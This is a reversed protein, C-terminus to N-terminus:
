PREEGADVPRGALVGAAVHGCRTGPHVESVRWLEASAAAPSGNATLRTATDLLASAAEEIDPFRDVFNREARILEPLTTASPLDSRDAALAVLFWSKCADLTRQPDTSLDVARRYSRAAGLLDGLEWRAEAAYYAADGARPLQDGLQELEAYRREAVEILQRRNYRKGLAHPRAAWQVLVDAARRSCEVTVGPYTRLYRILRPAAAGETSETLGELWDCARLDNPSMSLGNIFDVRAWDADGAALAERPDFSRPKASAVFRFPIVLHLRAPHLLSATPFRIHKLADRVCGAWHDGSPSSASVVRGFPDAALHFSARGGPHGSPFCERYAGVNSQIARELDDKFVTPAGGSRCASLQARDGSARHSGGVVEFPVWANRFFADPAPRQFVAMDGVSAKSAPFSRSVPHVRPTGDHPPRPSQTLRLTFEFAVPEPALSWEARRGSFVTALCHELTPRSYGEPLPTVSVEQLVGERDVVTRLRWTGELEPEQSL